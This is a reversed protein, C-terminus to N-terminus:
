SNEPISNLIEGVFLSGIIAHILVFKKRVFPPIAKKYLTFLCLVLFLIHLVHASGTFSFTIINWFM